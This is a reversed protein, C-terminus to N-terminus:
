KKLSYFYIFTLVITILLILLYFLSFYTTKLFMGGFSFDIFYLVFLSSVFFLILFFLGENKGRGYRKYESKSLNKDTQFSNNTPPSKFFYDLFKYLDHFSKATKDMKKIVEEVNDRVEEVGEVFHLFRDVWEKAKSPSEYIGELFKYLSNIAKISRETKRLSEYFIVIKETLDRDFNPIYGFRSILYLQIEISSARPNTSIFEAITTEVPYNRKLNELYTKALRVELEARRIQNQLYSLVNKMGFNDMLEKLSGLLDSCNIGVNYLKEIFEDIKKIERIGRNMKEM